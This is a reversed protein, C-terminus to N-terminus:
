GGCSALRAAAVARQEALKGAWQAATAADSILLDLDVPLMPTLVARARALLHREGEPTRPGDVLLLLDLDSSRRAEGKARSGFLM